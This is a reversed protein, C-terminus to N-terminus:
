GNSGGPGPNAAAGGNGGPKGGFGGAMNLNITGPQPTASTSFKQFGTKNACLTSAAQFTANAPNLDSGASVHVVSSQGNGNGTPDPYDPIGNARMCQAFKLAVAPDPAEPPEGGRLATEAATLYASCSPGGGSVGRAYGVPLTIQIVKNVDVTPDAQNPDGHSRM